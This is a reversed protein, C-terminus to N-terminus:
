IVWGVLLVINIVEKSLTSLVEVDIYTDNNINILEINRFYHFIDLNGFHNHTLVAPECRDADIPYKKYKIIILIILILM